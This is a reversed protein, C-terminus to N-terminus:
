TGGDATNITCQLMTFAPIQIFTEAGPSLIVSQVPLKLQFLGMLHLGPRTITLSMVKM